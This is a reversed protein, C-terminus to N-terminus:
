HHQAGTVGLPLYKMIFGKNAERWEQRVEGSGVPTGQVKWIFVKNEFGQEPDARPLLWGLCFTVKEPYKEETSREVEEPLLFCGDHKRLTM